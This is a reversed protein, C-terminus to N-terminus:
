SLEKVPSIYGDHFLKAREVRPQRCLTKVKQAKAFVSMTTCISSMLQHLIQSLNSIKHKFIHNLYKRLHPIPFKVASM